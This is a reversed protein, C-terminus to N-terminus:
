LEMNSARQIRFGTAEWITIGGNWQAVIQERGPRGRGIQPGVSSRSCDALIHRKKMRIVSYDREIRQLYSLSVGHM